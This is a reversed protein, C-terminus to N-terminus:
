IRLIYKRINVFFGVVGLELSGLSLVLPSYVCKMAGEKIISDGVVIARSVGERDGCVYDIGNTPSDIFYLIKEERAEHETGGCSNFILISAISFFINRFM